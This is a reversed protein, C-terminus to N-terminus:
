QQSRRQAGRDTRGHAAQEHLPGLDSDHQDDTCGTMHHHEHQHQERASQLLANGNDCSISICKGRLLDLFRVSMRLAIGESIRRIWFSITSGLFPVSSHKGYTIPLNFPRRTTVATVPTPTVFAAITVASKMWRNLGESTSTDPVPERNLGRIRVPSVTMETR